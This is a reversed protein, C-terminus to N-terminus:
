FVTTNAVSGATDLARYESVLHKIDDKIHKLVLTANVPTDFIMTIDNVRFYCNDGPAEDPFEQLEAPSCIHSFRYLPTLKDCSRPLVEIAFVKDSIGTADTHLSLRVSGRETTTMTDTLSISISM